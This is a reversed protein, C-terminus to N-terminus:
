RSLKIKQSSKIYIYLLLIIYILQYLYNNIKFFNFHKITPNIGLGMLHENLPAFIPYIAFLISKINNSFPVDIQAFPISNYNLIEYFLLLSFGSFLVKYSRIKLTIILTTLSIITVTFLNTILLEFFWLLQIDLKFAYIYIIYHILPVLFLIIQSIFLVIFLSIFYHSRFYSNALYLSIQNSNLDESLVKYASYISIVLSFIVYLSIINGEILSYVEIKKAHILFGPDFIGSNFLLFSNIAIIMFSIIGIIFTDSFIDILKQKILNKM